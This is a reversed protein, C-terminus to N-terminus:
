NGGKRTKDKAVTKVTNDLQV